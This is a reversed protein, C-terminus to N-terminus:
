FDLREVHPLLAQLRRFCQALREGQAASPGSAGIHGMEHKCCCDEVESLVALRRDLDALENAGAGDFYGELLADWM